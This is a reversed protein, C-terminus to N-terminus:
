PDKVDTAYPKQAKVEGYKLLLAAYTKRLLVSDLGDNPVQLGDTLYEAYSSVFPGCDLSGITQQGIRDVYQLAFLNAMKDRYAEITSLDTRVPEVIKSATSPNDVTMNCEKATTTIDVKNLEHQEETARACQVDTCSLSLPMAIKSKSSQHHRSLTKGEGRLRRSRAEKPPNFLDLFKANKDTKASLWRLIRPCFVEEQYNVHQRLYPIAEFSWDEDMNDKSEYM